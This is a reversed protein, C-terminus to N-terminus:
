GLVDAHRLRAGLGLVLRGLAREREVFAYAVVVARHLIQGRNGLVLRVKVGHDHGLDDLVDTMRVREQGIRALKELHMDNANKM